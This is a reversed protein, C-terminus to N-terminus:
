RISISVKTILDKELHHKITLHEASRDDLAEIAQMFRSFSVVEGNIRWRTASTVRTTQFDCRICPKYRITGTSVDPLRVDSLYVEYADQITYREQSTANQVTATLALALLSAAMIHKLRM